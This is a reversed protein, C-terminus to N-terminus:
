GRRRDRQHDARLTGEGGLGPQRLGRVAPPGAAPRVARDPRRGGRQEAQPDVPGDAVAAARLGGVAGADFLADPDGVREARIEMLLFLGLVVALVGVPAAAMLKLRKNNSAIVPVAAPDNVSIRYAEQGIEFDLQALRLKVSEQLRKWYALDAMLRSALYQDSNQDTSKIELKRMLEQVRTRRSELQKISGEIEQVKAVLAEPRQDDGNLNLSAGLEDHKQQWLDGWQQKLKIYQRHAAAVAPDSSNRGGSPRM